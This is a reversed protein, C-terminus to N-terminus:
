NFFQGIQNQILKKITIRHACIMKWDTPAIGQPQGHHRRYHYMVVPLIQTMFFYPYGYRTAV